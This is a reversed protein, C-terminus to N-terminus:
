YKRKKAEKIENIFLLYNDYRSKLIEGNLVKEKISCKPENIHTCHNFKCNKSELFFEVFTQSFTLEDMEDFSVNGFGPSDALYGGGVPYLEIHRTTHKGRGLAKSIANTKLNLANDMNNLLTSKGVGSQGTLVCISNKLEDLITFNFNEKSSVFTKYGINQYYNNIKNFEELEIENLLDNKTFIIIIEINNYELISIMKDLLNLNLDPEKISIVLLAKDINAMVPRILDNKRPYVKTIILTKPDFDVYDGVKVNSEKHRFVGRPKCVYIQDQYIVSYDGSISKQVLGKQLVEKM